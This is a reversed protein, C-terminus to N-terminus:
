DQAKRDRGFELHSYETRQYGAGGLVSWEARPRDVIDYGAGSAITARLDVNRVEDTYLEGIPAALFFRTTVYYAFMGTIRRNNTVEDNDVVSYASEWAVFARTLATERQLQVRSSFDTQDANGSRWTLGASADLSWYNLERTEGEIMSYLDARRFERIETGTDVRIVGGRMGATGTVIAQDGFRYTNVRPSGFGAVDDW